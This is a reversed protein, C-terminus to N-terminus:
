LDNGTVAVRPGDPLFRNGFVYWRDKTWQLWRWDVAEGMAATPTTEVGTGGPWYRYEEEVIEDVVEGEETVFTFTLPLQDPRPLRVFQVGEGVPEVVVTYAADTRKVEEVRHLLIWLEVEEWDILAQQREPEICGARAGDPLTWLGTLDILDQEVSASGYTVFFDQRWPYKLVEDDAGAYRGSEWVSAQEAESPREWSAASGCIEFPVGSGREMVGPVAPTQSAAATPMPSDFQGCAAISSGLIALVCVVWRTRRRPM